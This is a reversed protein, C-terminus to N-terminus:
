CRKILWCDGVELENELSLRLYVDSQYLKDLTVYIGEDADKLDFSVLYKGLRQWTFQDIHLSFSEGFM